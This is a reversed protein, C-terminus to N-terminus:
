KTSMASPVGLGILAGITAAITEASFIKELGLILIIPCILCLALAMRIQAGLGNKLGIRLVLCGFVGGVLLAAIEIWGHETVNM